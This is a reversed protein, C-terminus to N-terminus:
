HGKYFTLSVPVSTSFPPTLPNEILVTSAAFYRSQYFIRAVPCAALIGSAPRRGEASYDRTGYGACQRFDSSSREHLVHIRIAAIKRNRCQKGSGPQERLIPGCLRWRLTQALLLQCLQHSAGLSSLIMTLKRRVIKGNCFSMFCFGPFM